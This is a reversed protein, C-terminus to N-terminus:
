LARLAINVVHDMVNDDELAHFLDVPHCSEVVFDVYQSPLLTHRNEVAVRAVSRLVGVPMSNWKVVDSVHSTLFSKSFLPTKPSFALYISIPTIIM